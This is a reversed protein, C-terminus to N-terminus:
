VEPFALALSWVARRQWEAFAAPQGRSRVLLGAIQGLALARVEERAAALRVGGAVRYAELFGHWRAAPLDRWRLTWWVWALDLLPTGWAAM